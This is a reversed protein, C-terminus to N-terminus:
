RRPAPAVAPQSSSNARLLEPVNIIEPPSDMARGSLSGGNRLWILLLVGLFDSESRVNKLVRDRVDLRLERSRGPEKLDLFRVKGLSLNLVEIGAFEFDEPRADRLRRADSMDIMSVLNTQGAENKVINLEALNFRMLTIHLRREALALRDYEVHLEPIDIFATGGFEPPNYLKFDEISVVPSLLGLSFRRIKVDMGTQARIQREVAAKLIADKALVLGIVLALLLFTIRFFWKFMWKMSPTIRRFRLPCM